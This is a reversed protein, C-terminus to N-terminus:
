EDIHCVTAQVRLMANSGRQFEYDVQRIEVAYHEEQLALMVPGLEPSIDGYSNSLPFIRIEKAVRAMEMIFKIQSGLSLEPHAFLFHSSLALDFANDDFALNPLVDARYRGEEKGKAYDNLFRISARQWKDRVKKLSAQPDFLYQEQREELHDHMRKLNHAVLACMEEYSLHYNRACSIVETGFAHMEANFSDFGSALTIVKQTLDQDTLNFMHTYDLLDHGSLLLDKTVAM